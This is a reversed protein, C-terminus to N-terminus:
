IAASFPTSAIIEVKPIMLFMAIFVLIIGGYKYLQISEDYLFLSLTIPIILSMCMAAISIGMGIKDLAASYVFLNAIFISGLFVAVIVGSGTFSTSRILEFDSIFFSIVSAILYNITLINILRPESRKSLKLLHALALSCLVSSFIFTYGM